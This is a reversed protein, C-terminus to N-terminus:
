ATSSSTTSSTSSTSSATSGSGYVSGTVTTTSSSTASQILAEITNIATTLASSEAKMRAENAQLVALARALGKEAGGKNSLPPSKALQLAKQVSAEMTKLSATTAQNTPINALSTALAHVEKKLLNEKKVLLQKDQQYTKLSAKIKENNKQAKTLSPITAVKATNTTVMTNVSASVTAINKALVHNPLNTGKGGTAPQNGLGKGSAAGQGGATNQGGLGKGNAASQGGAGQGGAGKGSVVGQGGADKGGAASSGGGSHNNTSAHSNGSAGHGSAFATFPTIAMLGVSVMLLFAMRQKM